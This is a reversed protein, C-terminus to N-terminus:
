EWRDALSPDTQLVRYVVNHGSEDQHAFHEDSVMYEAYRQATTGLPASATLPALGQAARENNLLCITADSLQQTTATGVASDAFPCDAAHAPAASALIALGCAAFLSAATRRCPGVISQM